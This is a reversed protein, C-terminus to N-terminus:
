VTMNNNNELSKDPLFAHKYIFGNLFLIKINFSHLNSFNLNKKIQIAVLYQHQM